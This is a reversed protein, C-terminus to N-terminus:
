RARRRLLIWLAGGALVLAAAAGIAIGTLPLGSGHSSGALTSAAPSNPKTGTGSPRPAPGHSPSGPLPQVDWPTTNRDAPGPRGRGHVLVQYPRGGGYGLYVSTKDAPWSRGATDELVRWVQAATWDRHKSWVLAADASMLASAAATGGGDVCYRRFTADCWRPIDVGPASIEVEKGHQSTPAVTGTRDIAAVGVVEDYAAPYQQKNGEKANDGTGAFMLVGKKVAYNLAQHDYDSGIVYQNGITIDIIQAGADVASTIAASLPYNPDPLENHRIPPVRIPIIQVGPALGKLGGGRGTGAILEAATTGAGTTDHTDTVSGKALGAEVLADKGRLVQGRLSPTGPNVGTGIVAVKIGKGTSVKWIKDARIANLYWQKPAPDAADALPATGATVLLAAAAVVCIRLLQHM